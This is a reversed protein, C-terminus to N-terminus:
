KKFVDQAIKDLNAEQQKITPYFVPTAQQKSTGYELALAKNVNRQNNDKVYVSAIFGEHEQLEGIKSTKINEQLQGTRRHKQYSKVLEKQILEQQKLIIEKSKQEIDKVSSDFEEFLNKVDFEM